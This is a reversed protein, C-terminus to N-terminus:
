DAEGLISRIKLICELQPGGPGNDSALLIELVEQLTERLRNNDSELASYATYNSTVAHTLEYNKIAM